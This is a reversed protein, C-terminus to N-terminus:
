PRYRQKAHRVADAWEFHVPKFKQATFLAMQDTYHPSAPRNTASGYPQISESLVNGAKDWRVLMIFSDGHRVRLKKDAQDKDWMTTARLADTGGLMPVDVKGRRLRQVEALPPDLRGFRALMDDVAEKLAEHPPPLAERAWHKRSAARIVREALADAPGKGDSTWDWSSLLQQAKVLQADGQTPAKMVEVIWQGVWSRRDYGTDFKITLLQEPTLKGSTALLDAARLGRNTMGREIGLLSSFDSPNLESGPGAALFPTNNANMVYGSKPDVIKPFASFPVAGKWIARSTDGPLVKTYDFGPQRAPFLANYVYAIRGTKDAYIFNTAPVGGISMSRTWEEWNRAKTNRYYQEVAKANDIGAYRIAFAGAKNMLVPGHVSRYITQPVPVTFPGFRIALWIRRKELPRWQGDLRYHSKSGNLVLKYVDILDPRNVTNTWGLHRNHGLLVFPSGPFLAGAMDLGEGSHVVAEYWAVQGEFPQHSNSVLWTKGDAMKSPALAFANSGNLSPERGVPTMPLADEKPAPKNDTLAGIVGDLGYFFPARLVFGAVIDIGNVPFLKALRVEGPHKQAYHNLGAAYGEIVRRVEPSLEPYHRIATERAGLLAAVYDIQAGDKGTMAGDRGRTMAVVEQITSFDDEAHAYALGYAADADTKGKIHPVGFSDRVIEVDYRRAPPPAEERATLPEWIASAVALSAIGGALWKAWIKM